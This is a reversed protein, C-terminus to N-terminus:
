RHSRFNRCSDVSRHRRTTLASARNAGARLVTPISPAKTPFPQFVVVSPETAFHSTATQCTSLGHRDAGAIGELAVNGLGDRAYNPTQRVRRRFVRAAANRM